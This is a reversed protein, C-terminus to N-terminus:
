FPSCAKYIKFVHEFTFFMLPCTVSSGSWVSSLIKFQFKERKLDGFPRSYQIYISCKVKQIKVKSHIIFYQELKCEVQEETM